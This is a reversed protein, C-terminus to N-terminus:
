RDHQPVAPTGLLRQLQTQRPPPGFCGMVAQLLIYNFTKISLEARRPTPCNEPISRTEQRLREAHCRFFEPSVTIVLAQKLFM